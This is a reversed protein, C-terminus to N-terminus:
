RSATAAASASSTRAPRARAAAHPRRAARLDRPLRRRHDRRTPTASSARAAAAPPLRAGEDTVEMPVPAAGRCRRRGGLPGRACQKDLKGMATVRSTRSSSWATPPRTTPSAHRAGADCTTATSRPTPSAPEPARMPSWSRWASRASCPTPRARGGRGPRHGPAGHARGRGRHPVRQLGGRIYMEKLRGVIRSTATPTAAARPRRHAALRRRRDRDRHARPRALLRADHRALPVVM